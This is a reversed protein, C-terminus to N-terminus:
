GHSEALRLLRYPMSPNTVLTHGLEIPARKLVFSDNFRFSYITLHRPLHAGGLTYGSCRLSNKVMEIMMNVCNVALVCTLGISIVVSGSAVHRRACDALSKIKFSDSGDIADQNSTEKRTLPVVAVFSTEGMGTFMTSISSLLSASLRGTM